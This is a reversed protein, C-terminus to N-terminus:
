FEGLEVEAAAGALRSLTAVVLLALGGWRDFMEPVGISSGDGKVVQRVTSKAMDTMLALHNAGPKRM